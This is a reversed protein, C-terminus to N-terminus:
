AWVAELLRRHSESLEQRDLRSRFQDNITESASEGEGLCKLAASALPWEKYKDAFILCLMGPDIRLAASLRTVRQSLARPSIKRPIPLSPDVTGTLIVLANKDAEEEQADRGTGSELSSDVLLGGRPVVHGLLIHAIEHALHFALWSPQKRMSGLMIMPVDENPGCYMALGDFKHARRPSRALHFVIIGHSWCFELLGRLDVVESRELIWQRAALPTICRFAPVKTFSAVIDGMRQALFATPRMRDLDSNRPRKFYAERLPLDLEVKPNRLDGVRLALNKAIYLEAMERNAPVSALSDEWWQPFVAQLLFPRDFGAASLRTYLDTMSSHYPSM